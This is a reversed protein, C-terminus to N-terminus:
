KPYRKEVDIVLQKGRKELMTLAYDMLANIKASESCTGCAKLREAIVPHINVITNRGVRPIVGIILSPEKGDIEIMGEYLDTM